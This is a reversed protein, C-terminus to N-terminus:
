LFGSLLEHCGLGVGFAGASWCTIFLKAPQSLLKIAQDMLGWYNLYGHHHLVATSGDPLSYHYDGNDVHFDGTAYSVFICNWNRFPNDPADNFIGIGLILVNFPM